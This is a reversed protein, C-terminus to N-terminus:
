DVLHKYTGEGGGWEDGQGEEQKPPSLSVNADPLVSCGREFAFVAVCCEGVNEAIFGGERVGGGVM